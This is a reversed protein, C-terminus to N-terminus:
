DIWFQGCHPCHSGCPIVNKYYVDRHRRIDTDGLTCGGAKFTAEYQAQIKIQSASSSSAIKKRTKPKDMSLVPTDLGRAWDEYNGYIQELSYHDIKSFILNDRNFPFECHIEMEEYWGAGEVTNIIGVAFTGDFRITKYDGEPAAAQNILYKFDDMPFYIRLNGGYSSESVITQILKDEKTGKKIGLKQRIRNVEYAETTNRWPNCLFAEHWGDAEYNIDYYLAIPSTIALLDDLPTSKDHECIWDRIEDYHDEYEQELDEEYMRKRIENLYYGEPYDWWKEFIACDIDEFSNKSVCKQLIDVANELGDDSRGVYYLYYTDDVFDQWTKVEDEEIALGFEPFLINNYNALFNEAADRSDFASDNLRVGKSNLVNYVTKM